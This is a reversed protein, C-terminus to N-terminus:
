EKKKVEVVVENSTLTVKPVRELLKMIEAPLPRDSAPRAGFLKPQPAETSYHFRIRYKGPKTFNHPSLQHAGFFGYEDIKQYPDFSAGPKITVFDKARLPNTNGCRGIGKITYDVPPGTVEFYAHPYRMKCDSGDLSGILVIEGKTRNILRVTVKPAKGVECTEDASIQCTLSPTKPPTQIPAPAAFLGATLALMLPLLAFSRIM